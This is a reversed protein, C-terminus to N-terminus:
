ETPVSVPEEIRMSVRAKNKMGVTRLLTRIASATSGSKGIVLGMDQPNVKLILLVGMDDSKRTVEVDLPFNVLSRVLDTLFEQDKEM